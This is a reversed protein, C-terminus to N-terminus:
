VAVPRRGECDVGSRLYRDASAPDKILMQQPRIPRPVFNGECNPCVGKFVDDACNACFTCEYTCIRAVPSSPPLDVDCCECNPRLALM